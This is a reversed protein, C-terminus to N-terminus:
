MRVLAVGAQCVIEPGSQHFVILARDRVSRLEDRPLDSGVNSERAAFLRGLELTVQFRTGPPRERVPVQPRLAVGTAGAPTADVPGRVELRSEAQRVPIREDNGGADFGSDLTQVGLVEAAVPRNLRQLDDVRECLGSLRGDPPRELEPARM